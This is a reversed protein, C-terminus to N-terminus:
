RARPVRLNGNVVQVAAVPLQEPLQLPVSGAQLVQVCVHAGREHAHPRPRPASAPERLRVGRTHHGQRPGAVRGRGRPVRQPAGRPAETRSRKKTRLAASIRRQLDTTCRARCTACSGSDETETASALVKKMRRLVMPAHPWLRAGRPAGCTRQRLARHAWVVDKCLVALCDRQERVSRLHPSRPRHRHRASLARAVPERRARTQGPCPETASCCRTYMPKSIADIRSSTADAASM